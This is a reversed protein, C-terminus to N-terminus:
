RISNHQRQPATGSQDGSGQMAGQSRARVEDHDEAVPQPTRSSLLLATVGVAAVIAGGVVLARKNEHIFRSLSM